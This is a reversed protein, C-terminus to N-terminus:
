FIKSVNWLSIVKSKTSNEKSFVGFELGRWNERSELARIGGKNSRRKQEEFRLGWGWRRHLRLNNFTRLYLSNTNYLFSESSMFKLFGHTLLVLVVSVNELKWAVWLIHFKKKCTKLLFRKPGGLTMVYSWQSCRFQDFPAGKPGRFIPLFNSSLIM